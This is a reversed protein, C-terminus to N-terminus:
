RQLLRGAVAVVKAVVVVAGLGAESNAVLLANVVVELILIHGM